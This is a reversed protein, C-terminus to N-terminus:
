RRGPPRPRRATSRTRSRCRPRRGPPRRPGSWAVHGLLQRQLGREGEAVGRVSSPSATSAMSPVWVKPLCTRARRGRRGRGPFGREPPPPSPSRWPVACAVGLVDDVGFPSLLHPGLRGLGRDGDARDAGDLFAARRGPGTAPPRPLIHTLWGQGLRREVRWRAPGGPSHLDHVGQAVVGGAGGRDGGSEGGRGRQREGGGCRPRRRWCSSWWWRRAARWASYLAARFATPVWPTCKAESRWASRRWGRRHGAVGAGGRARLREDHLVPTVSCM